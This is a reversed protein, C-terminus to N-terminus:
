HASGGAPQVAPGGGLIPIAQEVEQRVSQDPDAKLAELVAGVALPNAKMRVLGRVCDARVMPAPDERAATVLGQVVEPHAKWDLQSLQEIAGQRQSPYISDRLVALMQPVNVTAEPPLYVPPAATAVHQGPVMMVPNIPQPPAYGQAMMQGGAQPQMTAAPDTFANAVQPPANFDAPLPRATGPKTFANAMGPPVRSDGAPGGQRMGTVVFARNTYPAQPVPGTPAVPPPGEPVPLVPPPVFDTLGGAAIV